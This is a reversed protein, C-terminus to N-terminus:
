KYCFIHIKIEQHIFVKNNNNNHSDLFMLSKGDTMEVVDALSSTCLKNPTGNGWSLLVSFVEKKFYSQQFLSCKENNPCIQNLQFSQFQDTVDFNTIVSIFHRVYALMNLLAYNIFLQLQIFAMVCKGVKHFYCQWFTSHSNKGEYPAPSWCKPTQRMSQYFTDRFHRRRTTNNQKYQRSRLIVRIITPLM